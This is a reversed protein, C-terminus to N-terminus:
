LKIWRSKFSAKCCFIAVHWRLFIDRVSFKRRLIQATLELRKNFKPHTLTLRWCRWYLKRKERIKQILSFLFSLLLYSISFYFRDFLIKKASTMRSYVYFNLVFLKFYNQFGFKTSFHLWCNKIMIFISSFTVKSRSNLIFYKRRLPRGCVRSNLQNGLKGEM